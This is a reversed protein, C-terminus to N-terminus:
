QLTGQLMAHLVQQEVSVIGSAAIRYNCTATPAFPSMVVRAQRLGYLSRQLFCEWGEEPMTNHELHPDLVCQRLQTHPCRSLVIRTNVAQAWALGMAAVKGERRREAGAHQSDARREGGGASLESSKAHEDSTIVDSVQNAVLVACNHRSAFTKLAAAMKILLGARSASSEKDCYNEDGRMPAAISDLM